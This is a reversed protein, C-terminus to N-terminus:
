RNIDEDMPSLANFDGLILYKDNNLAELQQILIQAERKRTKWDAPSLHVVFVDIGAVQAHLMGHWMGERQKKIVQIPWKSTLGVPYGDEKLIVAYDHGWSKADQALKEQTYGCLEQLALIDPKQFATWDLFQQHRTSDKGWDFGNWINYTIVRLTPTDEQTSATSLFCTCLFLLLYPKSM